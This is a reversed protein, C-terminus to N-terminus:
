IFKVHSLNNKKSIELLVDVVDQIQEIHSITIIYDFQSKLYSLLTSVWNLNEEDLNGWGEDIILFSSRPLNSISTLAVRMAISAIFKEMGSGLEITWYQNENYVIFLNINKNDDLELLISFNTIQSLINNIESEIMPLTKKILTYPIGDRQICNLYMNYNIVNQQLIKFKIIKEDLVSLQNNIVKIDSRTEFLDDTKLSHKTEYSVKTDILNQINENLEKNWKINNENENYKQIELKLADIKAEYDLITNKYQNINLLLTKTQLTANTIIAKYDNIQELENEVDNLLEYEKTINDIDIDFKQKKTENLELIDKTKIADKVFVNNMCYSCNEDYEVESLHNMKKVDSEIMHTLLRHEYKLDKLENSLNLRKAIKDHIETENFEKLNDSADKIHNEEISLKYETENLLTISEKMKKFLVTHEAELEDKDKIDLIPKLQERLKIINKDVDNINSKINTVEKSLMAEEENLVLLKENLSEIDVEYNSNSLENKYLTHLEKYNANAVDYLKDFINLGMFQIILDKREANGKDIFGLNKNQVSFATLVFDEFTGIYSYINKNTDWRQEGNLNVEEGTSTIKYFEVKYKVYTSSKNLVGTRKIYFTDSNISFSVETYFNRKSTNLINKPKFDRSTKDFLAFSLIDIISSKGSANPGCIGVTSNLKTFDIENDEGYSFLNDWKLYQLQWIAGRLSDDIVISKNIENNIAITGDITVDNTGPFAENIYDNLLQNQYNVDTIDIGTLSEYPTDSGGDTNNRNIIVEIPNWKKRVIKLMNNIQKSDMNMTKIRLRVHKPMDKIIPLTEDSMEITYFGWDNHIKIFESTKNKINWMIYGHELSEGHHNQLLSGSYAITPTLYQHRHIDGLIVYHFGDFTNVSIADSSLKYGFDNVSNNVIGHYLAIKIKDKSMDSISPFENKNDLISFHAFEVNGIKKIGSDKFYLISQTELLDIIPSLADLRHHNNLNADHNGPIVITYAINSLSILFESTLQIIEPSMETKSHVIDGAVIILDPSQLSLSKYLNEFVHKFEDHRKFPRIHIDSIHAIKEITSPPTNIM